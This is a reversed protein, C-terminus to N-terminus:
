SAVEELRLLRRPIRYLTGSYEGVLPNVGIIKVESIKTGILSIRDGVKIIQRRKQHYERVLKRWGEKRQPSDATAQLFAEPCTVWELRDCRGEAFIRYKWYRGRHIPMLIVVAIFKYHVTKVVMWVCNGRATQREVTAGYKCEVSAVADEICAKHSGSNFEFWESAM